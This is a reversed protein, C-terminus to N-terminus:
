THRVATHCMSAFLPFTRGSKDGWERWNFAEKDRSQAAGQMRRESESDSPIHNMFSDTKPVFSQIRGSEDLWVAIMLPDVIIENNRHM